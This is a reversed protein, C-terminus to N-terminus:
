DYEYTSDFLLLSSTNHIEIEFLFYKTLFTVASHMPIMKLRKSISLLM